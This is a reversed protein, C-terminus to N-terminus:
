DQCRLFAAQLVIPFDFTVDGNGWEKYGLTVWDGQDAWVDYGFKWGCWKDNCKYEQGPGYYVFEPGKDDETQRSGGILLMDAGHAKAEKVVAQAITTGNSDRPLWVLLHSFVRCSVPVQSPQFAPIVKTTPPYKAGKYATTDKGGCGAVLLLVTLLLASMRSVKWMTIIEQM